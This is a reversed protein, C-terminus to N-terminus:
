LRLELAVLPSLPTGLFGVCSVMPFIQVFNISTATILYLSSITYKYMVMVRFYLCSQMDVFVTPYILNMLSRRVFVGMGKSHSDRDKKAPTIRASLRGWAVVVQSM